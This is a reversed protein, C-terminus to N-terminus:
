SSHNKETLVHWELSYPTCFTLIVKATSSRSFIVKATSSQSFIVKATSSLTIIPQILLTQPKKRRPFTDRHGSRSCTPRRLTRTSGSPWRRRSSRRGGSSGERCWRHGRVDPKRWPWPLFGATFRKQPFVDPLQFPKNGPVSRTLLKQHLNVSPM